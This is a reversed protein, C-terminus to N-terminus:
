VLGGPAAATLAGIGMTRELLNRNNQLPKPRKLRLTENKTAVDKFSVVTALDPAPRRHRAAAVGDGGEGVRMEQIAHHHVIMRPPLVLFELRQGSAARFEEIGMSGGFVRLAQRPPAARIGTLRGTCRKHFLTINNANVSKMYSSSDLNYSKMCAWSCFTGMVHFIMRKDDYKIPMPLPAGEFPHCCYWCWQDSRAPWDGGGARDAVRVQRKGGAAGGAVALLRTGARAAADQPVAVIPADVHWAALFEARPNPARAAPM